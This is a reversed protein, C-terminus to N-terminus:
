IEEPQAALAAAMPAALILLDLSEPLIQAQGTM